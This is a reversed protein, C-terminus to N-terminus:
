RGCMLKAGIRSLPPMINEPQGDTRGDCRRRVTVRLQISSYLGFWTSITLVFPSRIWLVKSTLPDFTMAAPAYLLFRGNVCYTWVGWQQHM